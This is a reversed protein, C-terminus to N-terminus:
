GVLVPAKKANRRRMYFKLIEVALLQMLALGAILLWHYYHVYVVSFIDMLPPWLAVVLSFAIAGIVAFFVGKNSLFGAKFISQRTRTNFTDITSAWSLVMFAMTMGVEFNGLYRMAFINELFGYGLTRGLEVIYEGVHANWGYWVVQMYADATAPAVQVFAGLTIISFTVARVAIFMGVDQAFVGAGKPLPKRKMVDPEKMEFALFFGPIGDYVVNIILIQLATLVTRGLVVMGALLVFIEAFNVGLLFQITKRINDYSTRGETIADVITAFNDDTIIM